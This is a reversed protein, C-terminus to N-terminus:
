RRVLDGATGSWHASGDRRLLQDVLSKIQKPKLGSLQALEVAALGAAHGRGIAEGLEREARQFQALADARRKAAEVV